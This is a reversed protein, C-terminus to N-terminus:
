YCLNDNEFKLTFLIVLKLKDRKEIDQSEIIQFVRRSLSAKDHEQSLSVLDQEVESVKYLNRQTVKTRVTELLNLHKTM